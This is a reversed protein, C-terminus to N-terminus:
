APVRSAAADRMSRFGQMAADASRQWTFQQARALGRTRLDAALAADSILRDIAGALSSVDYPDVLLGADGVVEPLSSTNAAVVPCGCAMAEVAPLGFGEYVSPYVLGIAANYLAALDDDHLYGTCHVSDTLRRERIKAHIQASQHAGPGAIVLQLAPHRPRLTEYADILRLLNKRPQLSGVALLFPRQLQHKALAADVVAADLRRAFAGPAAPVVRVRDAADPFFTTIEDRAHSSLTFIARARRLSGAFMTGFMLRDRLSFFEPFRRFSVDHVSVALPCPVRYPAIYTAHAVDARWERCLGAFGTILRNWNSGSPLQLTEVSTPLSAAADPGEVVAAVTVDSRAALGALLGRVYTENGTEKHGLM